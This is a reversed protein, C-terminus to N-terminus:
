VKSVSDGYRLIAIVLDRYVNNLHTKALAEVSTNYVKSVVTDTADDYLAITFTSRMKSAAVAIRACTYGEMQETNYLVEVEAGDVYAKVHRGVMDANKFIVNFEVKDRMSLKVAAATLTASGSVIQEANFEPTTTTGYKAYEGANPVSTANHNMKEQLIKGYNLMDVLATCSILNKETENKSLTALKDLALAEISTKVVEGIYTVGDKKAYLTLTIEETMSWAMVKHIFLTYGGQYPQSECLTTVAGNEPDIQVAEVYFEDYKSALADKFVLNLGIYDQFSIAKV